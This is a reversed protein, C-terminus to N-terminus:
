KKGKRQMIHENTERSLELYDDVVHKLSQEYRFSDNDLLKKISEDRYLMKRGNVPNQLAVGGIGSEITAANLNAKKNGPAEDRIEGHKNLKCPIGGNLIERKPIGLLKVKRRHELYKSIKLDKM